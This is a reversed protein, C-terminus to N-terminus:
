AEIPIEVMEMDLLNVTLLKKRLPTGRNLIVKVAEAAELSAVLAATFSPCGLESEVGQKQSCSAFVAQLTREGPFQTTLQGYWGAISGHVLPIGLAGCAEALVLRDPISDLGDVAVQAGALVEGANEATFATRHPIVRVSPNVASVRRVAVSVKAQGITALDALLQRNLNHEEYTDPDVAVITGVGIRSLEEIVYGGLGGCGIVAARSRLLVLQSDPTITRANRAYREPVLGSMLIEEEVRAPSLRFREAADLQIKLSVLGGAAHSSLFGQLTEV